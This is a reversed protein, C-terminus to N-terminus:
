DFEALRQDETLQASREAPRTADERVSAAYAALAQRVRERDFLDSHSEASESAEYTQDEQPEQM